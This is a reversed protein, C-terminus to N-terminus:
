AVVAFCLLCRDYSPLPGYVAVTPYLILLLSTKVRGHRSTVRLVLRTNILRSNRYGLGPVTQSGLLFSVDATPFGQRAVALSSTHTHLMSSYLTAVRQISTDLLDSWCYLVGDVTVGDRSL